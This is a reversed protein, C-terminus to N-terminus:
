AARTYFESTEGGSMVTGTVLCYCATDASASSCQLVDHTNGGAVEAGLDGSGSKEFLFLTVFEDGTQGGVVVGARAQHVFGADVHHQDAVREAM